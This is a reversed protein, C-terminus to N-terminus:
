LRMLQILDRTIVMWNTTMLHLATNTM